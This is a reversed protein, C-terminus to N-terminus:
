FADYNLWIRVSNYGVDAALRLERDFIDHDYNRWIEYTNSAYSPIFNAGRVHAWDTNAIRTQLTAEDGAAFTPASSLVLAAAAVVCCGIAIRAFLLVAIRRQRFRGIPFRCNFGSQIAHWAGDLFSLRNVFENM